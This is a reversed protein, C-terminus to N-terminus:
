VVPRVAGPRRLGDSAEGPSRPRQLLDVREAQYGTQSTPYRHKSEDWTKTGVRRRLGISGNERSVRM